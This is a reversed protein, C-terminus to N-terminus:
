LTGKVRVNSCQANCNPIEDFAAIPSASSIALLYNWLNKILYLLAVAIVFLYHKEVFFGLLEKAVYILHIFIFCYLFLAFQDQPVCLDQLREIPHTPSTQLQLLEMKEKHQRKRQEEEYQCKLMTLEMDLRLKELEVQSAKSLRCNPQRMKLWTNIEGENTILQAQFYDHEEQAKM